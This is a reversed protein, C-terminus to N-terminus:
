ALCKRFIPDIGIISLEERILDCDSLKPLYARDGLVLSTSYDPALFQIEQIAFAGDQKAQRTQVDISLTTKFWQTLYALEPSNPGVYDIVVTKYEKLHKRAEGDDFFQAVAGRLPTLRTWALDVVNRGASNLQRIVDVGSNTDRFTATDIIIKDTLSFLKAFSSDSVLRETRCWLVVPLDPAMLGLVFNPLDELRSQSATIEIQECCIQQRKGFPMWCQALVRADFEDDVDTKVH